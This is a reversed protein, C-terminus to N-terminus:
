RAGKRTVLILATKILVYLDLSLSWNDIYFLDMRVAEEPSVDSRGNVQWWGTVGARVEHRPDLIELNASVQDAPLPRPGVLSMDGRIVNWLQPLEDLSWKRIFKGVKTLRPDDDDLKFFPATPDIGMERLVRDGDAVMTRFKLCKFVHGNRTVRDQRFVIPGPSTLKIALAVGGLIPLAFLLAISSIALDFARKITAQSRRFAVPKLSLSM